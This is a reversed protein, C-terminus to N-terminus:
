TWKVLCLSLLEALLCAENNPQNGVHIYTHNKKNTITSIDGLIWMKSGLKFFSYHPGHEMFMAQKCTLLLNHFCFVNPTPPPPCAQATLLCREERNWKLTHELSDTQRRQRKLFFVFKSLMEDSPFTWLPHSSNPRTWMKKQSKPTPWCITRQWYGYAPWHAKNKQCVNIHICLIYIYIYHAHKQTPPHCSNSLLQHTFLSFLIHQMRKILVNEHTAQAKNPCKAKNHRSLLQQQTNFNQAWTKTNWQWVSWGM